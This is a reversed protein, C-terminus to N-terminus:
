YCSFAQNNGTIFRAGNIVIRSSSNVGNNTTNIQLGSVKGVLGQAVTPAGAQSIEDSKILQQSSTVSNKTRKIGVSTVFVEDLVKTSEALKANYTNGAGVTVSKDTYGQFSMVLVDGAKAKISYKGDIDTSVGKTTGKIVVNAGPLAGTADSVVGSVTKEQAFSFQM